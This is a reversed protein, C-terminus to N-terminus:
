RTSLEQILHDLFPITVTGRYFEEANDSPVNNRHTQRGALRPVSPTTGVKAAMQVAENYWERHHADINERIQLFHLTLINFLWHYCYYINYKILAFLEMIKSM